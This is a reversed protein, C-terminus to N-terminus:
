TASFPARSSARLAARDLRHAQIRVRGTTSPHLSTDGIRAQEWDIEENLSLSTFTVLSCACVIVFIPLVSHLQNM